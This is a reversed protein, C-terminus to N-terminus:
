SNLNLSLSVRQLLYNTAIDAAEGSRGDRRAAPRLFTTTSSSSPDSTSFVTILRLCSSSSSSSNVGAAAFVLDGRRLVTPPSAIVGFLRVVTALLVRCLSDTSGECIKLGGSLMTSSGIEGVFLDGGFRRLAFSARTARFLLAGRMDIAGSAGSSCAEKGVGSGEADGSGADRCPVGSVSIVSDAILSCVGFGAVLFM